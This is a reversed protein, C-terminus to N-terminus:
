KQHRSKPMVMTKNKSHIANMNGVVPVSTKRGGIGSLNTMNLKDKVSPKMVSQRSKPIKSLRTEAKTSVGSVSIKLNTSDM